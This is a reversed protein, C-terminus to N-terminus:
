KGARAAPQTPADSSELQKEDQRILVQGMISQLQEYRAQVTVLRNEALIRGRRERLWLSALAAIIILLLGGVVALYKGDSSESM